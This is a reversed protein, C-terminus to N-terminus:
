PFSGAGMKIHGPPIREGGRGIGAPDTGAEKASLDIKQPVGHSEGKDEMM